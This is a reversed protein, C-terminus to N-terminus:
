FANGLGFQVAFKNKKFTNSIDQFLWKKDEANPDYLKFGFDIRLPGIFTEYRLGLGIALAIQNIRFYKDKDWVNGYDLFVVTWINKLINERQPFPKRRIELSGEFLFTGGTEPTVLIGNEKANWGRLSNSGGSFFKYIPSIPVLYSGKGYEVIDGIKFDTAFITTARGATLDFYFRAPLYFKFYQSYTINRNILSLFRPILGANEVTFSHYSGMSPNFIDNTNDHVLTMGIISNMQNTITGARTTDTGSYLTEKYKTRLLDVTIDSYASNYFTYTAIFYNLRLLNQLTIYQLTKDFNYYTLKLNYTGTMRYNFLYPQYITSTIDVRNVDKSHVLGQLGLLFTRGGGFFNKDYYEIGAGAFLQNDIDIAILNPTVEYKKNLTINATFNITGKSEDITDTLIRGSQVLSM